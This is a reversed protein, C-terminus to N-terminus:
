SLHLKWLRAVEAFQPDEIADLAKRAEAKKGERALSVGLLMNVADADSLGGKKVAKSLADAAKAYEGASFYLKGVEYMEDGTTAGSLAAPAGALAQRESDGKRKAAGLTREARTLSDGAFVDSALGQEMIREGEIGFGGIVLAQTMDTYHKADELAGVDVALRYLALLEHDHKTQAIYGDLLRGWTGPTPYHRLLQEAALQTGEKDKMEYNSRLILQLIEESPPNSAKAAKQGAAIANKYDKQKYYGQAVLVQIDQDGPVSKLYANGAEIAKPYDDARFYLQSLTKRRQVKERAPMQSSAIQKELLRAADANRGQQLYVYWRLENIKYQDFADKSPVKDAENLKGLATNWQKKGIAQQAAKLPVGVEASVKQQAQAVAPVLLGSGVVSAMAVTLATSLVWTAKRM